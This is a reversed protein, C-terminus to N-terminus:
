RLECNTITVLKDHHLCWITRMKLANYVSKSHKRIYKVVSRHSHQKMRKRKNWRGNCLYILFGCRERETLVRELEKKHTHTHFFSIMQFSRDFAYLSDRIANNNNNARKHAYTLNFHFSVSHISSFFFFLNELTIATGIFTVWHSCGIDNLWICEIIIFTCFKLWFRNPACWVFVFFTFSIIHM